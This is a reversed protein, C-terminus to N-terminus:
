DFIYEQEQNYEEDIPLEDMPYTDQATEPTTQEENNTQAEEEDYGGDDINEDQYEVLQSNPTMGDITQETNAYVNLHCFGIICCGTLISIFIRKM